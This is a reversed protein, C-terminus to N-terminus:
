LNKKFWDYTIKLGSDLTTKPVWGLSKFYSIDLLKQPTGDPMSLDYCIKNNFDTLKAIKSVLEKISIDSGYGINLFRSGIKTFVNDINSKNEKILYIIADILDDIFLFERKANGTGWVDVKEDNNIKAFHFKSILSPIVHSLNSNFNDNPGYLNSPMISFYNLGFQKSISDCLNIGAIKAISYSQNSEELKGTMLMNEKMPQKCNKPYICSSGLFILNKINAEKCSFIVNNQISLNEYLFDTPYKTNALIGGVKAAVLIVLEPNNRKIFDETEKKNLLDLKDRTSTIINTFGLSRMRQYLASGVMGTHGAIYIKSDNNM